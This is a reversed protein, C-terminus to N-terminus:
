IFRFETRATDLNGKIKSMDHYNNDVIVSGNTSLSENGQGWSDWSYISKDTFQANPWRAM